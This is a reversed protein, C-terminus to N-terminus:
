FTMSYLRASSILFTLLVLLIRFLTGYNQLWTRFPTFVMLLVKRLRYLCFMIVAHVIPHLSCGSLPCIESIAQIPPLFVLEQVVYTLFELRRKYLSKSNVKSRLSDYPSNYDQLM